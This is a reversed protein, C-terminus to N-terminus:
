DKNELHNNLNAMEPDEGIAMEWASVMDIATDALARQNASEVYGAVERDNKWGGMAKLQQQSAGLDAARRAGAKRLGHSSLGRLGAKDCWERFRNGFGASTFPKGYQTVLFTDKGVVPMAAIAALLQTSVKVELATGTKEQEIVFRGNLIDKQGLSIADGKRQDTWLILELALRQKTGIPYFARYQAIHAESWSPWGSPRKKGKVPATLDMPNDKRMKKKLAFKFLRKLQKRLNKAAAPHEKAKAAIIADLHDWEVACVRKDGHKSRFGDLIARNKKRTTASGSFDGSRYYRSCLDHITGPVTRDAAPEVRSGNRFEALEALFADTGLESKFYRTKHGKCRYRYQEKGHQNIYSSVHKPLMRRRM